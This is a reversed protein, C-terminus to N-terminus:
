RARSIINENVRKDYESEEDRMYQGTLLALVYKGDLYYDRAIYDSKRLLLVSCQLPSLM